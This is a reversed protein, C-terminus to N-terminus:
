EKYNRYLPESFVRVAAVFVFAVISSNNYSDNQILDTDYSLFTFSYNRESSRRIYIIEICEPIWHQISFLFEKHSSTVDNCKCFPFPIDGLDTNQSYLRHCIFCLSAFAYLIM